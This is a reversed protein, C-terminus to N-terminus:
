NNYSPFLNDTVPVFREKRKRPTTQGFPTAGLDTTNIYSPEAVLQDVHNTNRYLHGVDNGLSGPDLALSSHVNTPWQPQQPLPPLPRSAPWISTSHFPGMDNVYSPVDLSNNLFPNTSRSPTAPAVPFLDSVISPGPQQMIPSNPPMLGPTPLRQPQMTVPAPTEYQSPAPYQQNLKDQWKAPNKSRRVRTKYNEQDIYQCLKDTRHAYCRAAACTSTCVGCIICEPSCNTTMGQCCLVDGASIANEQHFNPM